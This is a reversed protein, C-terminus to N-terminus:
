ARFRITPREVDVQRKSIKHATLTLTLYTALEMNYIMDLHFDSAAWYALRIEERMIETDATMYLFAHYCVFAILIVNVILFFRLSVIQVYDGVTVKYSPIPLGLKKYVFRMVEQRYFIALIMAYQTLIVLFNAVADGILWGTELVYKTIILVTFDIEQAVMQLVAVMVILFRLHSDKCGVLLAAILVYYLSNDHPIYDTFLFFICTLTILWIIGPM